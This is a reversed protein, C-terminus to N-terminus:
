AMVKPRAMWERGKLMAKWYVPPLVREKLLWATRSPQKGDIVYSPFTPSLKGGYCFEALVIKGREVTLPCSGYGDYACQAPSIGKDFLINEAVVPAQKRAAAATKANPTSAADGLGFINPYKKHRLTAPDVDIWGSADSLPSARVFDPALQPPCVHIMDFSTEVTESTGDPLIKKFWAKRAPGDVATLTHNFNLTAHYRKVYEMLAPVYDAVGFLVAGTNYFEVDINNLRGTRLWHDASLYMAKQPAGACKIPMAPQTFLARGSRLTRVLEWTYPALDYRYNSTVGNKGLTEALGEVGNWNLKIGPCVVLQRYRITRCGEIVVCNAEPEFGAVAAKIWTVRHPLISAMAKATQEKKFIGGGVMTWGPQYYHTEAPEIVAIDLDRKRRLLSAAVAAGAAGGGVIVIDHTAVPHDTDVVGKNAIRDLVGSVDYGAAKATEAIEAAPRRIGENLAWITTSRTGTRCYALVPKPLEAMAAGFQRADEDTVKGTGVPIYRAVLGAARAASEVEAFLPQDAGEGDPRNCIISKFGQGAIAAMDSPVIQPSVSVENSLKKPNM